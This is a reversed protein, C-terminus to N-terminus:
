VQQNFEEVFKEGLNTLVLPFFNDKKKTSTKMFLGRKIAQYVLDSPNGPLPEKSEIYGQKINEITFPSILEKKEKHYAIIIGKDFASKPNKARVFEGISPAEDNCHYSEVKPTSELKNLREDVEKKWLNWESDMFNM